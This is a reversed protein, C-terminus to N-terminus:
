HALCTCSLVDMAVDDPAPASQGKQSGRRGHGSGQGSGDQAEAETKCGLQLQLSRIDQAGVEPMLRVFTETGTKPKKLIKPLELIVSPWDFLKSAICDSYDSGIRM